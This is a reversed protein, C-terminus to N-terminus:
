RRMHKFIQVNLNLYSYNKIKIFYNLLVQTTYAINRLLYIRCTDNFYKM